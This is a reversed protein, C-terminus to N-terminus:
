YETNEEDVVKYETDNVVENKKDKCFFLLAVVIVIFIANGGLPSNKTLPAGFAFGPKTYTYDNKGHRRSRHEDCDQTQFLNIGITKSCKGFGLILVILLIWIIFNSNGSTYKSLNM